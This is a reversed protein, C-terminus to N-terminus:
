QHVTRVYDKLHNFTHLDIREISANLKAALGGKYWILQNDEDLTAGDRSAMLIERAARKPDKDKDCVLVCMVDHEFEGNLEVYKVVYYNEHNRIAKVGADVLTYNHTM